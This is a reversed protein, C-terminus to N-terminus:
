KSLEKIIESEKDRSWRMARYNVDNNYLHKLHRGSILYLGPGVGGFGYEMIIPLGLDIDAKTDFKIVYQSAFNEFMKKDSIKTNEKTLIDKDVSM